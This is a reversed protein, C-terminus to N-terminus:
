RQFSSYCFPQPIYLINPNILDSYAPMGQPINKRKAM